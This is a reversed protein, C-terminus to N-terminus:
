SSLGPNYTGKGEGFGSTPAHGSVLQVRCGNHGLPEEVVDLRDHVALPLLDLEDDGREHAAAVRQELVDGARRLRHERARDGARDLPACEVRMWHVGSRWGVSTVPREIKLWRSRSKSNRGPGTNAFTTRTSSILRAIGFVCDASSSAIASCCTVTSPSVRWSARGTGRSPSASGSRTRPSTGAGRPAARGSRRSSSARAVRVRLVLRLMTSSCSAPCGSPWGRAPPRGRRCRWAARARDGADEQVLRDAAPDDVEDARRALRSMTAM